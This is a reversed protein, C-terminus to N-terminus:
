KKAPRIVSKKLHERLKEPESILEQLKKKRHTEPLFLEEFEMESSCIKKPKPEKKEM